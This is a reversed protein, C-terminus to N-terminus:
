APLLEKLKAASLRKDYAIGAADLAATIEAKTEAKTEDDDEAPAVFKPEYGQASLSQHEGEDNAAAFGTPINAAAPKTLNIPYM